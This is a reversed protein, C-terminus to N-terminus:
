TMEINRESKLTLQDILTKNLNTQKLKLTFKM